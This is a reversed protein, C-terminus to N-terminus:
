KRMEKICRIPHLTLELWTEVFSKTANWYGEKHGDLFLHCLLAGLSAVVWAAFMFAVTCIFAVLTYIM